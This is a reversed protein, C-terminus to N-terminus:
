SGDAAGEPEVPAGGSAGLRFPGSFVLPVPKNIKWAEWLAFGYILGSIPSHVAELVPVAYFLGTLAVVALVLGGLIKSPRPPDANLGREGAKGGDGQPPMGKKGEELPAAVKAAPNGQPQHRLNEILLPINMAVISSYTLFVALLQYLRGGRNGTGKRVATGVMLGLFIAVIAWNRDTARVIAYYLVAGIAAAGLGFATAKLFRGIRSGGRFSAEAGYRCMPCLVKAGIEFYEEAIPRKCIACVPREAVPTTFEAQDFQLMEGEEVPPDEGTPPPPETPGSM